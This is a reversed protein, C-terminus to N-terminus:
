LKQQHGVREVGFRDRGYVLGLLNRADINMKNLQLSKKLSEIAGSLNRVGARELGENYFSNSAQLIKKYIKVDAGCKQCFGSMTLPAGCNYCEM